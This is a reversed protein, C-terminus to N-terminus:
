IDRKLPKKASTTPCIGFSSRLSASKLPEASQWSWMPPLSGRSWYSVLESPLMRGLSFRPMPPIGPPAAMPWTYGTRPMGHACRQPALNCAMAATTPRKWFIWWITWQSSNPTNLLLGHATIKQTAEWGSFSTLISRPCLFLPPHSTQVRRKPSTHLKSPKRPSSPFSNERPPLNM